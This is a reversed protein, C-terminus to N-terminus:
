PQIENPDSITRVVRVASKDSVGRHGVVIVQDHPTLGETVQAFWGEQVGLQVEKEHARGEKVVYVYAADNKTIVTYLPVALADPIRKKVIEVRTFMDPLLQGDANDLLIELQYLRAMEDATKSFRYRKGTVVRGGLADITIDFEDIGRVADVDSEPIGVAVKVQDIDIIHAIPDGVNVYQGAEVPLRNLVGNMPARIAGRGVNHKASDMGAKLSNVQAVADDYQSRTALKKQYLKEIRNKHALAAQYSAKSSTLQNQYDRADLTVLLDGKKVVVGQDVHRKTVQGRVEALVNVEMFPIVTGPFNIKDMMEQPLVELTVVNVQPESTKLAAEQEAQLQEKKSKIQSFLFAVCIILFILLILPLKAWIRRGFAIKSPAPESRNM